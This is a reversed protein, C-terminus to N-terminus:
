LFGTSIWNYALNHFDLQLGLQPFGTTPGTTSIWNYAWNHFDLQLGPQPFRGLQPVRGLQSDQSIVNVNVNNPGNTSIVSIKLGTTPDAWNHLETMEVFPGFLTSTMDSTMCRREFPRYRCVHRGCVIVTKIFDFYALFHFDKGPSICASTVKNSTSMIQSYCLHIFCICFPSSWFNCLLIRGNFWNQFNRKRHWM